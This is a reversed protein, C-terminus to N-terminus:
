YHTAQDSLEPMAVEEAGGEDTCIARTTKQKQQKNKKFFFKTKTM